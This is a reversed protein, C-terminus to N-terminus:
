RRRLAPEGWEYEITVECSRGQVTYRASRDTGGAGHSIVDQPLGGEVSIRRHKAFVRGSYRSETIVDDGPAFGSGSAMFREGRHSVLELSVTCPGDRASIPQPITKAFATVTRDTSVLAIEWIAGRLYPGPEFTMEDLRRPTRNPESTVLNGSEDMRFGSVAEHFSHGFDKTWVGFMVGRPLGSARLRYQVTIAPPNAPPVELLELRLGPTALRADLVIPEHGIAPSGCLVLLFWASGILRRVM